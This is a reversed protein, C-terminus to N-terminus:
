RRPSRSCGGTRRRQGADRGALPHTEAAACGQRGRGEPGALPRVGPDLVGGDGADNGIINVVEYAAVQLQGDVLKFRGAMGDLTTNLVARLLATRYETPATSSQTQSTQFAQRPVSAAEATAAIAWATDYAWLRMVTPDNLIHDDSGPNDQRFRARFRASLNKVRNTLEVHPRLSVVGQTAIM